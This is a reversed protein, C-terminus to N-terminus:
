LTGDDLKCTEMKSCEGDGIQRSHGRQVFSLDEQAAGRHYQSNAVGKM